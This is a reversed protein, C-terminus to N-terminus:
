VRELGAKLLALVTISVFAGGLGASVALTMDRLPIGYSNLGFIATFFGSAFITMNGIAGFGDDGMIAHLASGFMFAIVCVAAVAMLLWGTDLNWLM